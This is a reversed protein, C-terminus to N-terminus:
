GARLRRKPPPQFPLKVNPLLHGVPEVLERIPHVKAAARLEKATVHLYIQTSTILRHGLLDRITVLPVDAQVLHTAFTHRLRHPSVRKSIGAKRSWTRVREYIANRSMPKKLRSLFFAQEPAGEGRAQQYVRLVKVVQDNLPIVRQHGGKGQVRITREDFDVDQECLGACESARIGTGYLLTLIARDRLGIITHTPPADLLKRVQEKSLVVPLKRAVPKIKPFHAMPNVSADVHGMAVMARYFNRLVVVSRNVASEGNGRVERLHRVYLLVQHMSICDPSANALEVKVYAHFKDLEERYATITKPKLYRAACHTEIYLCIYYDWM